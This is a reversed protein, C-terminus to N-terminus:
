RRVVGFLLVTAVLSLAAGTGFAVHAGFTTWLVGFLVSALLAGVGIVANYIGYAYGRRDVPALDAVLAKETGEAFGFYIGYVLFWAVLPVITDTTAFGVYVAAYVLWGIGIVTRRGMRDSWGGAAVSVSAKVVHLVAWLLPIYQPSGAVDTLKLLM